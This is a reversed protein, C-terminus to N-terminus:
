RDPGGASVFNADILEREGRWRYAVLPGDRGASYDVCATHPGSVTPRDTQWYHGYIVPTTDTYPDVPPDIPVHDRPPYPQGDVTTTGGPILAATDLHDADDSWWRFRAHRRPHGSPDLYAPDVAIEPGKLLIEIADHEATGEASAAEVLESSLTPADGLADMSAPDWCAHVVRLEGLDLWLPLTRFWDVIEDHTDSREGVQELFAGHQARNKTTDPRLGAHFAVANFEHNGATVLASGAEVMSRAIRYCEVQGPGRDVLDGVFVAMRGDPHAWTGNTDEYDMATLVATLKDAHGHVDGIVDYGNM